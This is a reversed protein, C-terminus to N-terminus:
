EDELEAEVAGALDEDDNERAVDLLQKVFKGLEAASDGPMLPVATAVLWAALNLAERPQLSPERALNSIRVRKGSAGVGFQNM